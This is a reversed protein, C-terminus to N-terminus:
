TWDILVTCLCKCWCVTYQEGSNTSLCVIECKTHRVCLLSLDLSNFPISPGAHSPLTRISVQNITFSKEGLNLSCLQHVCVCVRRASRFRMCSTGCGTPWSTSAWATISPPFVLLTFCDTSTSSYTRGLATHNSRPYALMSTHWKADHHGDCTCYHLDKVFLLVMEQM